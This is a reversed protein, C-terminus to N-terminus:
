LCRLEVEAGIRLWLTMRLNELTILRGHALDISLKSSETSPKSTKDFTMQFSVRDGVSYMPKGPIHEQAM